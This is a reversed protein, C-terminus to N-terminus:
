VNLKDKFVFLKSVLFRFPFLIGITLLTAILYNLKLWVGINYFLNACMYFFLITIFFRVLKYTDHNKRFLYKLQITYLFFYSIGYIVMFSLSKNINFVEIFVFLGLFVFGYGILSILIYKILQEKTTKNSVRNILEKIM